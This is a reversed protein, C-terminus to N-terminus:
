RLVYCFKNNQYKSPVEGGYFMYYGDPKRGIRRSTSTLESEMIRYFHKLYYLEGHQIEAEKSRIGHHIEAERSQIGSKRDEFFGYTQDGFFGKGHDVDPHLRARIAKIIPIHDPNDVTLILPINDIFSESAFPM